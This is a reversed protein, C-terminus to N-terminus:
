KVLMKAILTRHVKMAGTPCFEQCCFCKICLSRDIIAKKDRITIAKSPCIDRCKGCGVCDKGQLVPRSELLRRLVSSIWKGHSDFLMGHRVAINKYDKVAYGDLSGEGCICVGVGDASDPILRRQRAALLTPVSDCELSILKACVVDLVHPSTCAALVGIHRPTGKTPGNGEMGEIADVICLLTKDAFYEDIDVLMNSFDPMNPFRFHYEPKMTGPIVGFMNKAAASMGMMGHSKLKSFNIIFDCKDLWSTYTFTKLVAAGGFVADAQGFDDNLVAGAEVAAVMGTSNYVHNLFAETYLGGPSDGIIVNAGRERLRRVLACILEPHTTAAKDPALASVLNAKIGVTMGARIKSLASSLEESHLLIDLAAAVTDYEYSDAPAIYVTPYVSINNNEMNIEMGGSQPPVFTTQFEVTDNPCIHVEDMNLDFKPTFPSCQAEASWDKV